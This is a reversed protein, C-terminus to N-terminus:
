TKAFTSFGTKRLDQVGQCHAREFIVCVENRISLLDLLSILLHYYSQSHTLEAISEDLHWALM